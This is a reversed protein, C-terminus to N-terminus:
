MEKEKDIERLLEEIRSAEATRSEKIFVIKPVPRIQLKKNLMQQIFYIKRKLLNIVEETKEEPLISLYVKAEILNSSSEVRTITLLIDPFIDVEKLIISGLEKKIFANVKEIRWM